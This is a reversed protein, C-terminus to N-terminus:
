CSVTRTKLKRKSAYYCKEKYLSNLNLPIGYGKFVVNNDCIIADHSLTADFKEKPTLSTM